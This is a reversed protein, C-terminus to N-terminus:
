RGVLTDDASFTKTKPLADPCEPVSGEGRNDFLRPVSINDSFDDREAPPRSSSHPPASDVSRGCYGTVAGHSPSLRVCLKPDVPLTRFGPLSSNVRLGAVSWTGNLSSHHYQSHCCISKNAQPSSVPHVFCFSVCSM